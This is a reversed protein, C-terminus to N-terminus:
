LQKQFKKKDTCYGKLINIQNINKLNKSYYCFDGQYFNNKSNKSIRENFCFIKNNM